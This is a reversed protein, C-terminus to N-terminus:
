LPKKLHISQLEKKLKPLILNYIINLILKNLRNLLILFLFFTIKPWASFNTYGKLLNLSDKLNFALM